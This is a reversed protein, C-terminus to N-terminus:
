KLIKKGNIINIGNGRVSLKQGNVNYIVANNKADAMNENIGNIINGAEDVLEKRYFKIAKKKGVEYYRFRTSGEDPNWRLQYGVKSTIVINTKGEQMAISNDYQKETDSKLNADPLEPDKFSNYGIWYGSASQIYYLGENVSKTITFSANDVADTADITRIEQGNITQYGNSATIFNNKADLKELSGDFIIAQNNVDDEYVILYTGCWDAPAEKVKVFKQVQAQATASVGCLMMTSLAFTYIKRM